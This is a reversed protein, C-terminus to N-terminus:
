FYFLPPSIFNNTMKKKRSTLSTAPGTRRAKRTSTGTVAQLPVRLDAALGGANAIVNKGTVIEIETDTTGTEKALDKLRGAAPVGGDGTVTPTSKGATTPGQPQPSTEPLAIEVGCMVTGIMTPPIVLLFMGAQLISLNLQRPSAGNHSKLLSMAKTTTVSRIMVLLIEWRRRFVLLFLIQHRHM